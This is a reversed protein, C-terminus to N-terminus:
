YHIEDQVNPIEEIIKGWIRQAMHNGGINEPFKAMYSKGYRKIFSERTGIEREYILQGFIKSLREAEPNDHIRYTIEGMNHCCNCIPIKIGDDECLERQSSGFILHHEAEAYRGCIYCSETNITVISNSM